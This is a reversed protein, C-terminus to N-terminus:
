AVVVWNGVFNVQQIQKEQAMYVRKTQTAWNKMKKQAVGINKREIAWDKREKQAM